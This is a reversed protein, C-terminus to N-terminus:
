RPNGDIHAFRCLGCVTALRRDITSAALGREEMHHRFLEVHPRTAALVELGVSATWAFFFRLDQRYAELTRGSYRALFAVAALEAENVERRVLVQDLDIQDSSM